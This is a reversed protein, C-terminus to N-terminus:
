YRVQVRYKLTAEGDKPVPISYAATRSDRKEHTHTESLIEWDGGLPEVVDVTIDSEKHNRLVIEYESQHVNASIVRYDLQRREGVVDFANGMKLRINEKKATHKIRDEGSFQLMGESDEQYIRMVGGPLPIGLQNTEENEFVIYVDANQEPLHGMPQSYFSEQGRFEYKKALKVGNATLLSVQKSQNQKITTRRPISYLHYEAFSEEVAEAVRQGMTVAGGAYFAEQPPQVINVDGAVLKLKANSYTAGSQNALTVWGAIDMSTEDKSLTLVYDAAWTIGNTLYTAEVTQAAASNEIMWVLSPKAILNEPIEPLVVYGPHGLFIEGGIQYVPGENLSLLEAEVETSTIENSLNILRVRKGVYKEMLKSPSMLDYEYNQELIRLSGPTAVSVLSVSEPKILQAVDGFRLAHEGTPLTLQRTDRVLALNNNYITVAVDTQDALSSEVTTPVPSEQAHVRVPWLSALVAIIALTAVTSRIM